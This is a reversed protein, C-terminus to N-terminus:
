LLSLALAEAAGLEMNVGAVRGGRDIVHHSPLGSSATSINNASLYSAHTAFSFDIAVPHTLGFADVWAEQDAANAPTGQSSEGFLTIIILGDERHEQWLTENILAEQQCPVCWQAAAVLLVVQDCFDHLKLLDSFQDEIAFNPAVSGISALSGSLDNRCADITWGGEYPHDYGDIPNTYQAVEEGDEWGDRDTDVDDPNSGLEAEEVDTLGDGDRDDATPKNNGDPGGGSCAALALIAAFAAHPIRITM